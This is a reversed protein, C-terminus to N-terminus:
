NGPVPSYVAPVDTEGSQPTEDTERMLAAEVDLDVQVAQRYENLGEMCATLLASLNNTLTEEFRAVFEQDNLPAEFSLQRTAAIPSHTVLKPDTASVFRDATEFTIKVTAKM